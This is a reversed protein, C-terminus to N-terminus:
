DFNANKSRIKLILWIKLNLNFSYFSRYIANGQSSFDSKLVSAFLFSSSDCREIIWFGYNDCKKNRRVVKTTMAVCDFGNNGMLLGLYWTM